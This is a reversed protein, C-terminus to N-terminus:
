SGAISARLTSIEGEIRGEEKGLALLREYMADREYKSIEHKAGASDIRYGKDMDDRIQAVENRVSNLERELKRINQKVEYIYYGANYGQMFEAQMNGPPCVSTKGSGNKGEDYGRDYTCFSQLGVLRGEGYKTADPSVGVEACDKRYAGIRSMPQGKSGDEVGISYWDAALCEEESISECASLVLLAVLLTPLVLMGLVSRRDGQATSRVSPLIGRINM